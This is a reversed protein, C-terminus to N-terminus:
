ARVETRTMYRDFRLTAMRVSLADSVEGKTAGDPVTVGWTACASLQGPTPAVNAKRWAASRRSIAAGNVSTGREEAETEGWAMAMELSLDGHLKPWRRAQRPAHRVQWTGAEGPWLFVEGDAVPIFMVGGETRLWASKSSAFLDAHKVKIAFPRAKASVTADQEASERAEAEALSEGPRVTKVTGPELDALTCLRGSMGGISLVLADQKGPFPRLARGVMQQFLPESKTIKPVVCDVWPFDAGETLVGCNIIADIKGTRSDDYIRLREARPTDATVVDANFGMTMMSDRVDYAAAVTPTFIIGKRGTAYQQYAQAIVAGVDATIMADGLSGAAFDGGSKKVQSLNLNEATAVQGVPDVLHGRKIMWLWTRSFVVEDILSGLGVGDGRALTATFGAKRAKPFAAYIKGYSVAVAHHVEDTIILGFQRPHRTPSSKQSEVLRAMRDKRSATQVSAVVVDAFVEDDDAKVKGATLHPAVKRIKDLAQDALEDRHVLVLVRSRHAAINEAALHSFIVTKGSNHTVTFDDLLYRQDGDLTFGYFPEVTGTPIVQFGTRLVDKVQGRAPAIKRRIRVPIITCDGSISVRFHGSPRKAMYAALGLSRAIFAVDAALRESKSGYDYGGGTLSGDSDILGALVQRRVDRSGLKYIEPVFRDACAIPCLGLATLKTVLPNQGGRRGNRKHGSTLHHQIMNRGDRRVHVGHDSAVQECLEAIEPDATAISLRHRVSLSGDGLVVGLFYPDLDPTERDPFDVPVRFLKHTHKRYRSWQWWDRLDVDTIVGGRQSPYQDGSATRILTLVHADNVVWPTGKVPRVEMMAGTGRALAMVTRPTSDPGMVRDGVRVDEVARVSGDYMLVHQGARHCGTPLVVAPFRMGAQHADEIKDIAQQQYERLRLLEAM